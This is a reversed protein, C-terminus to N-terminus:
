LLTSGSGFGKPYIIAGNKFNVGTAVDNKLLMAGDADIYDLLPAIQVLNSIGITSETMCGVMVKLHLARAKEIMKLAPTIGGCKMLKINIGHFVNGCPNVDELRQCSEDAMIPLKSHQKVYAMAELSDAKLPQEIFEVGLDKLVKSKEITEEVGWACNADIRFVSKTVARLAKIIELDNDIGLKIKYIPWPNQRIKSVMVPIDDIGITYNTLPLKSTTESWFSRLTKKKLRAYFDWYACDIASLAFYNDLLKPEILEWLKVPHIGINDQFMANVSEVSRKLNEITSAYYPNVTAEGYGSVEGNTISVILTDQEYVTYRSISFPYELILKHHTTSLSIKKM